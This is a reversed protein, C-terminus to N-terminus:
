LFRLRVEEGQYGLLQRLGLQGGGYLKKNLEKSSDSGSRKERIDLFSGWALNVEEMVVNIPVTGTGVVDWSM